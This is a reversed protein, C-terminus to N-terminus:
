TKDEKEEKSGILAFTGPATQEILIRSRAKKALTRSLTGRDTLRGFRQQLLQVLDNVHLPKGEDTM